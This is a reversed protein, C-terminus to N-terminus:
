SKMKIVRGPFKSLDDEGDETIVWILKMGRPVEPIPCEGDTLIVVDTYKREKAKNVVAQFDTGGRGKFKLGRIKKGDFLEGESVVTDFSHWWVPIEDALRSVEATFKALSNNSVSMSCDGFVGMVNRTDRVKGPYPPGHRRSFKRFTTDREISVVQGLTHSLYRWWPVESSHAKIIMTQLGAPMSGWGSSSNNVKKIIDKIEQTLEPSKGFGSHDDITCGSDGPEGSGSGSSPDGDPFKEKLLEYYQEYSLSEPFGYMDPYVGIREGKKHVLNGQDDFLDERWHPRAIDATDPLLSNIALDAAINDLRHLRPDASKRSSLHLLTVHSVEHMFCWRIMPQTLQEMFELNYYLFVRSDHLAVALTSIDKREEQHMKMMFLFTFSDQYALYALTDKFAGKINM